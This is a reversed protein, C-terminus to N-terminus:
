ESNGGAPLLKFTGSGPDFGYQHGDDDELILPLRIFMGGYPTFWDTISRSTLMDGQLTSIGYETISTHPDLPPLPPLSARQEATLHLMNPEFTGIQPEIERVTGNAEIVRVSEVAALLEIEENTM